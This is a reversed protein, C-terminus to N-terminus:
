VLKCSMLQANGFKNKSINAFKKVAKLENNKREKSKFDEKHM